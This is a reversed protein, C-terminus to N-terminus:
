YPQWIRPSVDSFCRTEGRSLGFLLAFYTVTRPSLERSKRVVEKVSETGYYNLIIQVDDETGFELVREIIIYKDREPSLPGKDWFYRRKDRIIREM